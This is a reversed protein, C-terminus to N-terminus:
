VEDSAKVPVHAQAQRRDIMKRLAAVVPMGERDVMAQGMMVAAASEDEEEQPEEEAVEKKASYGRRSTMRQASYHVGVMEEMEQPRIDKQKGAAVKRYELTCCVVVVNCCQEEGVAAQEQVNPEANEVVQEMHARTEDGGEEQELRPVALAAEKEAVTHVLVSAKVGDPDVITSETETRQGQAAM